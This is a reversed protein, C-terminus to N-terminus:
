NGTVLQKIKIIDGPNMYLHSVGYWAEPASKFIMLRGDAGSVVEDNRVVCWLKDVYKYADTLSNM